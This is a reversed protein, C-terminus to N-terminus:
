RRTGSQLVVCRTPLPGECELLDDSPAGRLARSPATTHHHRHRGGLPTTSEDSHMTVETDGLPASRLLPAPRPQERLVPSVIRALQEDEIVTRASAHGAAPSKSGSRQRRRAKQQQKRALERRLTANLTENISQRQALPAGASSAPLAIPPPRHIELTVSRNSRELSNSTTNLQQVDNPQTVRLPATPPPGYAHALFPNVHAYSLPLVASGYSDTNTSSTDPAGPEICCAQGM